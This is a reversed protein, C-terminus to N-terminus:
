TEEVRIYFYKHIIYMDNAYLFLAYAYFYFVNWLFFPIIIEHIVNKVINEQRLQM